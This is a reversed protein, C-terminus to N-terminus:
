RPEARANTAFLMVSHGQVMVSHEEFKRGPSDPAASDILLHLRMEPPPFSFEIPDHGANVLLLVMEPQGDAGLTARRVALARAEPNQWAEPSLVQGREDFWAIDAIGPAIEAGHLYRGGQLAEFRRRLAILRSVYDILSKGEDSAAMEWDVWSLENDQCYANNNGHQTRGFEDGGLMMPLGQSLLLTALLNRKQRERLENIEPDDTPG